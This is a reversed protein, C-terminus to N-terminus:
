EDLKKLFGSNRLDEELTGYLELSFEILNGIINCIFEDETKTFDLKRLSINDKEALSFKCKEGSVYDDSLVPVVITYWKMQVALLLKPEIETDKVRKLLCVNVGSPVYKSSIKIEMGLNPLSDIYKQREEESVAEAIQNGNEDFFPKRSICM